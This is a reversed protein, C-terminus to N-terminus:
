GPSNNRSEVVIFHGLRNGLDPFEMVLDEPVSVSLSLALRDAVTM